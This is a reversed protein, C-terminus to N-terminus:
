TPEYWIECIVIQIYSNNYIHKTFGCGGVVFNIFTDYFGNVSLVM